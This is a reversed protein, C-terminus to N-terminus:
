GAAKRHDERIIMPTTAKWDVRHHLRMSRDGMPYVVVGSPHFMVSYFSKVYTGSAEYIDTMGGTSHQTTVQTLSVNNATLMVAGTTAQRTYTNVDENIRGLFGIPRATDCIFSNMAKRKMRIATGFTGNHRGGIFDGGQAFAITSIGTAKLFGLAAGFVQDLSRVPRGTAYQRRSDWRYEFHTYDDDLQIFYQVGRRKAIEFSANRAYVITRMDDQNDATDFTEAIAAKDFVEVADGFAAHYEDATKDTDDIVIIIQGTYGHRRLTTYTKVNDPRGHTLILAAFDDMTLMM